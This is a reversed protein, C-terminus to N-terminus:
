PQGIWVARTTPDPGRRRQTDFANDIYGRDIPVFNETPTVSRICWRMVESQDALISAKSALVVGISSAGTLKPRAPTTTTAVDINNSFNVLPGFYIRGRRRNNIPPEGELTLCIACEEPLGGGASAAALTASSYFSPTRPPPLLMNYSSLTVIRSVFPSIYAGLPPEPTSAEYFQRVRGVVANRLAEYADTVSADDFHFTTVYRDEPLLTATDFTAQVRITTM